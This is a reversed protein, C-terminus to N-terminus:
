YRVDVEFKVGMVKWTEEATLTVRYVRCAM